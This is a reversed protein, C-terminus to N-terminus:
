NGSLYHQTEVSDPYSALLTDGLRKEAAKDAQLRALRVGLWLDAPGPTAVERRLRQYYFAALKANNGLLQLRTMERLATVDNGNFRLVALLDTNAEDLKDLKMLCLGRNLRATQPKDYLPDALARTFYAISEAARADKCLFWGYNNNVEPNTGDISLAKRFAGEAEKDMGLQMLVLARVLQGNQYSSDAKVAEDASDLAARMNGYRMYEVALQARTQALELSSALALVPLCLWALCLGWRRMWMM